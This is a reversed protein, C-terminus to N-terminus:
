VKSSYENNVPSTLLSIREQLKYVYNVIHAHM